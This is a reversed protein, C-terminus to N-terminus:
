QKTLGPLATDASQRETCPLQPPRPKCAQNHGPLCKFKYMINNVKHTDLTQVSTAVPLPVPDTMKSKAPRHIQPRPGHPTIGPSAPAALSHRSHQHKCVPVQHVHPM